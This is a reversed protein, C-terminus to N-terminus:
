LALRSAAEHQAAPPRKWLMGLLRNLRRGRGLQARLLEHTLHGTLTEQRLVRRTRLLNVLAFLSGILFANFVVWPLVWGGTLDLYFRHFGRVFAWAGAVGGGTTAVVIGALYSGGVLAVVLALLVRGHAQDFLGSWSDALYRISARWHGAVLLILEAVATWGRRAVRELRFVPYGYFATNPLRPEHEGVVFVIFKRLTSAVLVENEVFSPNAGPLCVMADCRRLEDQISHLLEDHKWDDRFPIRRAVLGARTLAQELQAASDERGHQFSIFVRVRHAPVALSVVTIAVVVLFVSPMLAFGIRQATTAASFQQASALLGEVTLVLVLVLVIAIVQFVVQNQWLSTWVEGRSRAEARADRVTDILALAAAVSSGALTWPLHRLWTEVLAHWIVLGWGALAALGLAGVMLHFAKHRPAPVVRDAARERWAACSLWWVIAGVTLALEAPSVLWPHLAQLAQAAPGPLLPLTQADILMAVSIGVLGYALGGQELEAVSKGDRPAARRGEWVVAGLAGTFLPLAFAAAVPNAPWLWAGVRPLLEHASLSVLPWLVMAAVAASLILTWRDRTRHAIEAAPPM